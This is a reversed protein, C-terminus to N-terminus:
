FIGFTELFAQCRTTLPALSGRTYDHELFIHPTDLLELYDKLGRLDYGFPDCFRPLFIVVGDVKWEKILDGLYNFRTELDANNDKRAEGVVAEIFTRPCPLGLYRQALSELPDGTLKVDSFYARSGICNDDIVVHAGLKEIIQIVSIDDISSSLVLIRLGNDSSKDKLKVDDIVEGLLENGEEVPLSQVAKITEITNSGSILPPSEKRLDYLARVLARQDNFLRISDRFKEISFKVKTYSEGAEIFDSLIGKYMELSWEHTTAPMDIHYFFDYELFSRWVYSTKEQPDCSHVGVIGDLFDYKGKIALDLCSRMLPCYSTPLIDDVMTVPEGMDGFIRYPVINLATLIELPVYSCLYGIIKKGEEKLEKVRSPRNEIVARVRPLGSVENAM